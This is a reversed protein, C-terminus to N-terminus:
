EDTACSKVEHTWRMKCAPFFTGAWKVSIKNINLDNHFTSILAFNHCFPNWNKESYYHERDNIPFFIINFKFPLYKILFKLLWKHIHFM